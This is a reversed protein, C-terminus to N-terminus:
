TRDLTEPVFIDATFGAIGSIGAIKINEKRDEVPKSVHIQHEWYKMKKLDCVVHVKTIQKESFDQHVTHLHHTYM